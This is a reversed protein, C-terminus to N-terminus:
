ADSKSLGSALMNLIAVTEMMVRDNGIKRTGKPYRTDPAALLECRGASSPLKRANPSTPHLPPPKVQPIRGDEHHGIVPVKASSRPTDLADAGLEEGVRVETRGPVLAKATLRRGDVRILGPGLQRIGLRLLSDDV